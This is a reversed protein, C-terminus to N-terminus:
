CLKMGLVRLASHTLLNCEHCAIGWEAVCEVTVAGDKHIQVVKAAHWTGHLGEEILMAEM